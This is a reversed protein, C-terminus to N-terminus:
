KLEKANDKPFICWAMLPIVGVSLLLNFILWLSAIQNKVMFIWSSTTLAGLLLLGFFLIYRVKM